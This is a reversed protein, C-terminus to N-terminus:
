GREEAKKKAQTIGWSAGQDGPNIVLAKEFSIIAANYNKEKLHKYGDNMHNSYHDIKRGNIDVFYDSNFPSGPEYESMLVLKHKPYFKVFKDTPKVVWNGNKDIVGIKKQYGVVAFGDQYTAPRQAFKDLEPPFITKGLKDIFGWKNRLEILARGERFPVAIDFQSSM